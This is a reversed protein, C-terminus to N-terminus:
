AARIKVRAESFRIGRPRTKGEVPEAVSQETENAPKMAVMGPDSKEARYMM